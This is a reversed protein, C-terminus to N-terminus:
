SLLVKVHKIKRAVYWLVNKLFMGMKMKFSEHSEQVSHMVKLDLSILYIIIRNAKWTFMSKFPLLCTKM